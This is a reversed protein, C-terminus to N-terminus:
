RAQKRHHRSERVRVGSIRSICWERTILGHGGDPTAAFPAPLYLVPLVEGILPRKERAIRYRIEAVEPVDDLIEGGDRRVYRYPELRM